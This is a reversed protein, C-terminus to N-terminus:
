RALPRTGGFFGAPGRRPVRIERLAQVEARAAEVARRAEAIVDSQQDLRDSVPKVEERAIQRAQAGTMPAVVSAVPPAPLKEAFASKIAASVGESVAKQIDAPTIAVQAPRHHVAPKPAPTIAPAPPTCLGEIGNVNCHYRVTNTQAMVSQSAAGFLLLAMIIAAAAGGPAAVAPAPAPPAPAPPVPPAPAPPPVVPAPAPAPPVPAPAPAPAGAMNVTAHLRLPDAIVELPHRVVLFDGDMRGDGQPQPQPQPQPQQRRRMLALILLVILALILAVGLVNITGLTSSNAAPLDTPRVLTSKLEDGAKVVKLYETAVEKLREDLLKTAAPAPQTTTAATQQSPCFVTGDLLSFCGTSQQAFAPNVGVALAAAIFFMVFHRICM